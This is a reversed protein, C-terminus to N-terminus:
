SNFTLTYVGGTIPGFYSSVDCEQSAPIPPPPPVVPPDSPTGSTAACQAAFCKGGIGCNGTGRRMKIFGNNGWGTGWSNKVLWYDKGTAADTGYGVVLVAHNTSSSTCGDFVGNAYNGFGSDSAYISTTAAGYTAVLTKLKDETCYYDPMANNVYAGSNYITKGTPCTLKPNTNLYPYDVEHVSQGKLTNAFFVGYSPTDAGNCGNM